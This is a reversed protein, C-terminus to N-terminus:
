QLERDVEKSWQVSVRNQTDTTDLLPRILALTRADLPESSSGTPRAIPCTAESTPTMM